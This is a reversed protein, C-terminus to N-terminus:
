IARLLAGLERNRRQAEAAIRNHSEALRALEDDGTIHIPPSSEGAAVREVATTIRRLPATIGSVAVAAALLGFLAAAVISGILLPVVVSADTYLGAVVVIGGFIAVPLV